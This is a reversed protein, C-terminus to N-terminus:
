NIGCKPMVLQGNRNDIGSLAVSSYVADGRESRCTASLVDGNMQFDRCTRQFSSARCDQENILHGNSNHISVVQIDTQFYQGRRSACNAQLYQGNSSIYVDHCSRQFSSRQAHSPASIGMFALSLFAMILKSM